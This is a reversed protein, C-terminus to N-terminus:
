RNGEPLLDRFWFGTDYSKNEDKQFCTDDPDAAAGYNRHVLDGLSFRIPEKFIPGDYVFTHFEGNEGAPDVGAPLDELFSKDLIRGTFSEDLLRANASVVVAKFGLAIFDLVLEHTARGWLPFEAKINVQALQEERYKRLDELNIDGFISHTIGEDRLHEMTTRMVQNYAEMSVDEPLSMQKLPLGISAAQKQLLEERVGHMTIRNTSSSLTTLLTSVTYKKDQLVQHLCLASDKGGSWNFVSKIM